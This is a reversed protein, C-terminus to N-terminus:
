ATASQVLSGRERLDRAFMHLTKGEWEVAVSTDGNVDGEIVRLRADMPLTTPIRQGDVSHLGLTSKRLQYM